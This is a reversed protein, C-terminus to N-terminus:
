EETNGEETMEKETDGFLNGFYLASTDVDEGVIVLNANGYAERVAAMYKHFKYADPAGNYAEVCALFEKISSQAKANKEEYSVQANSVTTDRTSEAEAIKVTAAAEAKAIYEQAQIEASILAQYASAIDVPPHISELIVAVVQLGLNREELMDSLKQKFDASFEDRDASMLSTLNTEITKDTVLEYALAEMVAEPSSTTTLYQKLDKIKYELRLNISVVENGEGLLLIYEEGQHSETWVNDTNVQSKYGITVKSITDTNYIEVSDIPYPLAFHIGPNLIKDQLKGFRYVAAQQESNVQVICTSLWLLLGIMFVTVPAIERIYKISWLGRITIGTNEELYDLFGQERGNIQNKAFPIPVIIYPSIRLEKRVITVLLSITVFGLYYFFIATYLYGIYRQINFLKLNEALVIVIALATTPIGIKFFVRCNQLISDVFPPNHKSYKCIKEFVTVIILILILPVINSISPTKGIKLRKAFSFISTSCYYYVSIFVLFCFPLFIKHIFARIKKFKRPKTNKEATKDVKLAILLLNTIGGFLSIIFLFFYLYYGMVYHMGFSILCVLLIMITSIAALTRGRIQKNQM